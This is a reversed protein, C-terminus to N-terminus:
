SLCVYRGMVGQRQGLPEVDGIAVAGGASEALGTNLPLDDRPTVYKMFSRYIRREGKPLQALLARSEDRLPSPVIERVHAAVEGLPIPHDLV